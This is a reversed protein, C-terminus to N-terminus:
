QGPEKVSTECQFLKERPIRKLLEDQCFASRDQEIEQRYGTFKGRKEFKGAFLPEEPYLKEMKKFYSVPVRFAGLSVSHVSDPPLNAFLKDFLTRYREEFNKCDILPDIRLGVPWGLGAIKEMARIRSSVSPVGHELQESIEDPTFSFATVVNPLPDTKELVKLNVSKTRLELYANGHKAFFPLFCDAFGTVNELALSDCDYGSFFWSPEDASEKTKRLIEDQFDDYNVFLVYHASPFMGQLFCYRCDYLCNLLHSFYFNRTGGIGYTAPVPHVLSGTQRALILSPKQKQLRFSQGGPNFVDKYHACSILIARPYRKLIAQVSPHDLIGEEHYIVEIM